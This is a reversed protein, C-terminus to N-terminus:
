GLRAGINGLDQWFDPYSKDVCEPNQIVTEDEAAQALIAFSMAIRHDNHTDIIAGKPTGGKILATSEDVKVEIGM